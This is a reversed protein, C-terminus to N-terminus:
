EFEGRTIPRFRVRDGAKLLAPPERDADFLRLPTRGIVNWGGPSSQPYIGTQAGGIAVSGAPVGQRPTARRPTALEPPLGGLYPFGPAFGLCHVRYEVASHRAIVEEVSLGTHRAVDALDPGFEGDYCVPIEVFRGIDDNYGPDTVGAEARAIAGERPAITPRGLDGVGAVVRAESIGLAERIRRELWDASQDAPDEALVRVPDFFVAVTEYSPTCEIVGPINAAELCRQTELVKRLAENPERSFDAGVRVILASDGLPTIEM